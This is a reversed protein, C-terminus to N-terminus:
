TSPYQEGEPADKAGMRREMIYLVVVGILAALIVIYFVWINDGCKYQTYVDFLGYDCGTFTENDVFVVHRNLTYVPPTCLPSPAPRRKCKNLSMCAFRELNSIAVALGDQYLQAFYVGGYEDALAINTNPTGTIEWTYRGTAKTQNFKISIHETLETGYRAYEYLQSILLSQSYQGVVSGLRQAVYREVGVASFPNFFSGVTGTAPVRQGTDLDTIILNNVDWVPCLAFGICEVFLTLERETEGEGFELTAGVTGAIRPTAHTCALEPSASLTTIPMYVCGDATDNYIREYQIGEWPVQAIAHFSVGHSIKNYGVFHTDEIFLKRDLPNGMRNSAVWMNMRNPQWMRSELTMPVNGSTGCGPSPIKINPRINPIQNVIPLSPGEITTNVFQKLGTNLGPASPDFPKYMPPLIGHLRLWTMEDSLMNCPTRSHCSGGGACSDGTLHFASFVNRLALRLKLADDVNAWIDGVSADYTVTPLKNGVQRWIGMGPNMSGCGSGLHFDSNTNPLIMVGRQTEIVSLTAGKALPIFPNVTVIDESVANRGNFCNLLHLNEAPEVLMRRVSDENTVVSFAANGSIHTHVEDKPSLRVTRIMSIIRDSGINVAMGIKVSAVEMAPKQPIYTTCTPNSASLMYPVSRRLIRRRDITIGSMSCQASGKCGVTQWSTGGEGLVMEWDEESLCGMKRAGQFQIEMERAQFISQALTENSLLSMPIGDVLPDIEKNFFSPKALTENYLESVMLAATSVNYGEKLLAEMSLAMFAGNLLLNKFNPSIARLPTPSYQTTNQFPPLRKEANRIITGPYMRGGRYIFDAIEKPRFSPFLTNDDVVVEPFISGDAGTANPTQRTFISVTFDTRMNALRRAGLPNNVGPNFGTLLPIWEAYPLGAYFLKDVVRASATVFPITRGKDDFQSTIIQEKLSREYTPIDSDVTVNLPTILRICGLGDNLCRTGALPGYRTGTAPVVAVPINMVCRYARINNFKVDVSFSYDGATISHLEGCPTLTYVCM